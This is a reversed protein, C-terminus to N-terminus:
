PPPPVDLPLTGILTYVIETIVFEMPAGQEIGFPRTDVQRLYIAYDPITNLYDLFANIEAEHAPIDNVTGEILRIRVIVNQDGIQLGETGPAAILPM